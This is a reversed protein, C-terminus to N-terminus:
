NTKSSPNAAIVLIDWVLVCFLSIIAIAQNESLPKGNVTSLSNIYLQYNILLSLVIFALTGIVPICSVVGWLFYLRGLIAPIWINGVLRVKNDQVPLCLALLYLRLFPVFAHNPNEYGYAILFKKIALSHLVYLLLYLILFAIFFSGLMTLIISLNDQM